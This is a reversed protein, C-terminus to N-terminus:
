VIELHCAAAVFQSAPIGGTESETWRSAKAVDPSWTYVDLPSRAEAVNFAVVNEHRHWRLRTIVATPQPPDFVPDAQPTASIAGSQMSLRVVHLTFRGNENSAYAIRTGDGSLDWNDVDWKSDPLLLTHKNNALDIYALRQFESDRDTTVFIGKSDKAFRAQSYSVKEAGEAARPTLEKREGSQTNFLWLYSENISIREIVLLQSDEPSWDQIDWGGGKVEALMRDSKPNTP